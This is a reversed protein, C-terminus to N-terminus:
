VYLTYVAAITGKSTTGVSSLRLPRPAPVEGFLRKGAGLLLPHIFLRLEDILGAVMLQRVVDGSGLIVVDGDGEGKLGRVAETLEEHLPVAGAWELVPRTRTAVHKPASNLSAAMPNDPSQFPWFAALKEYTRRGFLYASTAGLGAPDVVEHMVDGYPVGWGGHEFGGDRDEDPSGLGQMVGDVSLFEVAVLRRM